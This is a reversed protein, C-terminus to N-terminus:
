QKPLIAAQTKLSTNLYSTDFLYKDSIRSNGAPDTYVAKAYKANPNEPTWTNLGYEATKNPGLTNYVGSPIADWITESGVSFQFFASLSLNKYTFTNSFGGFFDPQINGIIERDM